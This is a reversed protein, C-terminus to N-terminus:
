RTTTYAIFGVASILAVTALTLAIVDRVLAHKTESRHGKAIEVLDVKSSGSKENNNSIEKKTDGNTQREHDGIADNESYTDSKEDEETMDEPKKEDTIEEIKKEEVETEDVEKQVEETKREEEGEHEEKDNHEHTRTEDLEEGKVDGNGDDIEWRAHNHASTTTVKTKEQTKTTMNNLIVSGGSTTKELEEVEHKHAHDPKQTDYDIKPIDHHHMRTSDKENRQSPKVESDHLTKNKSESDTSSSNSHDIQEDEVEGIPGEKEAQEPGLLEVKSEVEQPAEGETRNADHNDPSVSKNLTPDSLQEEMLINGPVTPDEPFSVEFHESGEKIKLDDEEHQHGHNDKEANLAERYLSLIRHGSQDPAMSAMKESNAVLKAIKEKYLEMIEEEGMKEKGLKEQSQVGLLFVYNKRFM